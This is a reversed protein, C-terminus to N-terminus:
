LSAHRSRFYICNVEKQFMNWQKLRSSLFESKEKTLDLDRVLNNQNLLQQVDAAQSSRLEEDRLMSVISASSNSTQSFEISEASISDNDQESVPPPTPISINELLHTIPRLASPSDPYVIRSKTHKSYESVKTHCFYCDNAHDTPEHWIM